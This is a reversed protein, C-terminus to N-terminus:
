RSRAACTRSGRTWGVRLASLTMGLEGWARALRPRAELVRRLVAAAREHFEPAALVDGKQAYAAGLETQARIYNPDLAVAREFFLIAHEIAEYSDARMNLLGKSLAEYAAVVHTEDGEHEAAVSLRLGAALEGVIRDQLEFIGALRGDTKVARLM